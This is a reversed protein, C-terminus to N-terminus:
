PASGQREPSYTLVTSALLFCVGMLALGIKTSLALSQADNMAGFGAHLGCALYAWAFIATVHFAGRVPVTKVFGLGTALSALVLYDGLLLKHNPLASNWFARHTALAAAVAAMGFFIARLSIQPAKMGSM